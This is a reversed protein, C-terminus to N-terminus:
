TKRLRPADKHKDDSDDASIWACPQDSLNGLSWRGDLRGGGSGLTANGETGPTMTFFRQGYQLADDRLKLILVKQM